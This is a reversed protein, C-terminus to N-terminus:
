VIEFGKLFGGLTFWSTSVIFCSTTKGSRKSFEDKEFPNFDFL